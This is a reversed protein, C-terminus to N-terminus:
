LKRLTQIIYKDLPIEVKENEPLYNLYILFTKLIPWHDSDIKYFLMRTAASIHFVNGLIILHNLILREQLIGTKQYKGFLRKLYKFRNLDEYFEDTDLCQPNDYHRAAFLLFNEENLEDFIM